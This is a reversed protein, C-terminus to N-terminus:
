GEPVVDHVVDDPDMQQVVVFACRGIAGRSVDMEPNMCAGTCVQRELEQIEVVDPVPLGARDGSFQLGDRDESSPRVQFVTGM